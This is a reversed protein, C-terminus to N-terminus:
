EGSIHKSLSSDGSIHNSETGSLHLDSKLNHANPSNLAPNTSSNPTKKDDKDGSCSLLSLLSVISIFSVLANM